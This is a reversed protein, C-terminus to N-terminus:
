SIKVSEIWRLYIENRKEKTYFDEKKQHNPYEIINTRYGNKKLGLIHQSIVLGCERCANEGRLEDILIKKSNCSPCTFTSPDSIYCSLNHIAKSRYKQTKKYKWLRDEEEM